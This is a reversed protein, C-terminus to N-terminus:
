AARRTAGAGRVQDVIDDVEQPCEGRWAVHGDPRVLVLPRGYLDAIAQEKLEHTALPVGRQEFARCLEGAAKADAGPFSLLTFGPGFLDLTSRGDALWAHPARSGPRATPVYHSFDDPTAATGDPICIPSDEYRYGIQLGLSEWEVRTAERLRRGLAARVREGEETADCVAGPSPADLWAAFNQSSFAINRAAIPRRELTYSDLLQSGGWGRLRAEIKWGLDLVEQIGTNMGMGGTPSMTHVSDGALLVRGRSFEAALTESRRWPLVSLVTFPIDDSGLARRVLAPADLRAPDLKEDSGLVTLRWIDRGDVVTLNAWTGEPQVFLYREAEGMGHRSVLGPAYILINVSYSLLRGQEPIGLVKRIGSGAGDCGILYRARVQRVEDSNVERVLCNVGSADQSFEELRHHNRVRVGPTRAAARQLIPQMWLQPCRQKKEPTGPPTPTDAMSPYTERDLLFGNLSTCFVVSLAYRDPFGCRRVEEAIGWRRFAEMSRVAILGTRPHEIRGDTQELLLCDVGRRGLEVAMALGVPGAGVIVVAVEEAEGM